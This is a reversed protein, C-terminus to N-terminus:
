PQGPWQGRAKEQARAIDGRRAKDPVGPHHKRCAVYPTGAVPHRGLRWCRHEHCAHKRYAGYIAGIIALEGVDSGPGSWFAYWRGAENDIGLLHPLWSM